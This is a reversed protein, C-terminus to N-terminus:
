VFGAIVKHPTLYPEIELSNYEKGKISYGQNYAQCAVFAAVLTM